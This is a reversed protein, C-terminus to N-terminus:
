FPDCADYESSEAGSCQANRVLRCVAVHWPGTAQLGFGRKRRSEGRAESGRGHIAWEHAWELVGGPGAERPAAARTYIFRGLYTYAYRFM